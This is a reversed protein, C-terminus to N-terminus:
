HGAEALGGLADRVESTLWEAAPGPPAAAHWIAHLRYPSPPYPALDLAVLRGAELDEQAMWCPLGGWGLGACLLDRKTAMDTVRWSNLAVVRFNRGRTHETQDAVVIQLHERVLHAPVPRPGAALPHDPAACPVLAAGGLPDFVLEDMGAEPSGAIGLDAQRLLVRDWVAGLAGTHLHLGVTPFRCRFAKLVRTLVPAPLLVDAALRLEGELGQRLGRARGQLTQLATVMRRADEVLAAGARTLQPQRTGGRDFLKVGLQVELNGVGYSVASQARGLRRAAASFSGAETVALFIRLQDLTPQADM